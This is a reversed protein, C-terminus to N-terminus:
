QRNGEEVQCGGAQRAGSIHLAEVQGEEAERTCVCVCMCVDESVGKRGRM